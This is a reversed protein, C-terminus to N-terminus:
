RPARRGAGPFLLLMLQADSGDEYYREIRGLTRFGFKKHLEISAKNHTAIECQALPLGQNRMQELTAGLIASGIGRRRFAPHVDLTILQGSILNSIQFGALTGNMYARVLLSGDWSLFGCITELSYRTEPPYCLAEIELMSEIEDMSPCPSPEIRLSLELKPKM